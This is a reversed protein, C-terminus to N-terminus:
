KEAAQIRTSLTLQSKRNMKTSGTKQRKGLYLLEPLYLIVLYISKRPSNGTTVGSQPSRFFAFFADALAYPYVYVSIHMYM